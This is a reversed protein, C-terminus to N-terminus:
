GTIVRRRFEPVVAYGIHGGEVMLFENLRHRISTRGVIREGDFAFLFSSPVIKHSPLNIGEEVEALREIYKGFEMGEEYYHLFNPFDPSTARHASLFEQEDGINLPRLTLTFRM